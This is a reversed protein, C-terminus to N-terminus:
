FFNGLETSPDFEELDVIEPRFGYAKAEDALESAFTEATGTQSGYFIRLPLKGDEEKKEPKTRAQAAGSASTSSPLTKTPKADLVFIKVLLLISGVFGVVLSIELAGIEM